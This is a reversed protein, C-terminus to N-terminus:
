VRLLVIGSEKKYFRKRTQMRSTRTTTIHLQPSCPLSSKVSHNTGNVGYQEEPWMLGYANVSLKSSINGIISNMRELGAAPDCHGIRGCKLNQTAPRIGPRTVRGKGLMCLQQFMPYSFKSQIYNLILSQILCACGLLNAVAGRDWEFQDNFCNSLFGLGIPTGGYVTTCLARGQEATPCCQEVTEEEPQSLQLISTLSWEQIWGFVQWPVM